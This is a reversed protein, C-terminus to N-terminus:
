RGIRVEIERAAHEPFQLLLRPDAAADGPGSVAFALIEGVLEGAAHRPFQAEFDGLIGRQVEIHGQGTPAAIQRADDDARMHIRHRLAAIVIARGTHHRAKGGHGPQAGLADHGLAVDGDHRDAGLFGGPEVAGIDAGMGGEPLEGLFRQLGRPGVGPPRQRIMEGLHAAIHRRQAAAVGVQLGRMDGGIELDM